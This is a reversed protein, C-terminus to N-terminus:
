IFSSQLGFDKQDLHFAGERKVTHLQISELTLM